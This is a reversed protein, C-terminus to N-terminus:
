AFVYFLLLTKKNIITHKVNGFYSYITGTRGEEVLVEDVDNM